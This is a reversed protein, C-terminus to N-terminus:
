KVQKLLDTLLRRSKKGPESEVGTMVDIIDPHAQTIIECCNDSRIGGGLMVTCEASAKVRRFFSMDAASGGASANSPGRSDVLIVAVGAKSLLKACDEPSDIGFQALREESSNPITKIVSIGHPSLKKVIYATDELTEHYHLQVYNPRLMMALDHIKEREGGTVICSKSPVAVYRLLERCDEATLNWPVDLPYETVFGCIDVGHDCCMQVDEARMLGCIKLM